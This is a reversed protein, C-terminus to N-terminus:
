RSKFVVIEQLPVSAALISSNLNRPLDIFRREWRNRIFSRAVRQTGARTSASM